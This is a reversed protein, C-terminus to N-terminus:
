YRFPNAFHYIAAFKEQEDLFLFFNSMFFDIEAAKKLHEVKSCLGSEEQLERLTAEEITEGLKVKGRFGNYKGIGFGRKKMGLLIEDGNIPICLTAKLTPREMKIKLYQHPVCTDDSRHRFRGWM